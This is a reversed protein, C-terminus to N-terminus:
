AGLDIRKQNAVRLRRSLIRALNSLFVVQFETDAAFLTFLRDKSVRFVEVEDTAAVVTASRPEHDLVAMEGFFDGEYQAVLTDDGSLTTMIKGGALHIRVQGKLILYLADGVAGEAVIQEGMRFRQIEGAELFRRLQDESLAVVLPSDAIRDPSPLPSGRDADRM